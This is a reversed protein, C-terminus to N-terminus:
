PLGAPEVLSALAPSDVELCKYAGLTHNECSPLGYLPNGALLMWVM